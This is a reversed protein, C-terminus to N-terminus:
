ATPYSADLNCGCMGDPHNKQDRAFTIYGDVGWGTGWSNKIRFTPVSSINDYGVALVGHNIESSCTWDKFIGSIYFRIGTGNIGLAVPQQAIADQLLSDQGPEVDNYGSISLDSRGTKM